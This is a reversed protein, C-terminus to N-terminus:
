SAASPRVKSKGQGTPTGRDPQDAPGALEAVLRQMGPGYRDALVDHFDYWIQQVYVDHRIYGKALAALLSDAGVLSQWSSGDEAVAWLVRWSDGVMAIHRAQHRRYLVGRTSDHGHSRGHQLTVIPKGFHLVDCAVGRDDADAIAAAIAQPHPCNISVYVHRDSSRVLEVAQQEIAPWSDFSQLVKFGQGHGAPTRALEREASALRARFSDELGALLEDASKAVFRAPEGDLPAVIGKAQLRRLTEYVKPQPIGTLNSLAYGTLPESGLLGVYARAEYQSFGLQILQQVAGALREM